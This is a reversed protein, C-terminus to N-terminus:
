RDREVAFYLGVVKGKLAESTPIEGTATKLTAGLLSDFSSMINHNNNNNATPM